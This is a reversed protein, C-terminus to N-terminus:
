LIWKQFIHVINKGPRKLDLGRFNMCIGSFWVIYFVKSLQIEVANKNAKSVSLLTELFLIVKAYLTKNQHSINSLM